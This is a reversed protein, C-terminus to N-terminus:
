YGEPLGDLAVTLGAELGGYDRESDDHLAVVSGEEARELGEWGELVLEPVFYTMRVLVLDPCRPLYGDPEAVGDSVEETDEKVGDAGLAEAM